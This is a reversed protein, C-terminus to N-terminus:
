LFSAQPCCLSARSFPGEGPSEKNGVQSDFYSARLTQPSVFTSGGGGFCSMGNPLNLAAFNRRLLRCAHMGLHASFDAVLTQNHRDAIKCHSVCIPACSCAETCVGKNYGERADAKRWQASSKSASVHQARLPAHVQNHQKEPVGM